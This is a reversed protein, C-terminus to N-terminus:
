DPNGKRREDDQGGVNKHVEEFVKQDTTTWMRGSKKCLPSQARQTRSLAERKAEEMTSVCGSEGARQGGALAQRARKGKDVELERQAKRATSEHDLSVDM